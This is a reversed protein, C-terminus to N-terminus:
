DDLIDEFLNLSHSRLQETLNQLQGVQEQMRATNSDDARMEQLHHNSPKPEQNRDSVAAALTDGKQEDAASSSAALDSYVDIDGAAGYSNAVATSKYLNRNLDFVQKQSLLISHLAAQEIPQGMQRLWTRIQEIASDTSCNLCSERLFQLVWPPFKSRKDARNYRSDALVVVGYDTKSRIVRGICQASQRLADFTLFDNDRISYHERMFNLRARLVHSLTYQYPVGFVIVCRGYHRDFDIGEAVKGRAVSLFVAGRGADCARKYNDLALTTEVVDKTELYILKHDMVQALIGLRDWEGVIFEMFQYSTFFGCVGDPVSAAVDILLQGYNRIVPLDKRQEFRTSIPTQDSGRTVILPLLCSRFTTMPLSARVVPQFNLLKPYLDIPSLTGSTIVVSQFRTLVPKIAISADLCCLQILPETVGAVVSGLPETIIAFGELYTAVLTAFNAVEQLAGYEDLSTVELTRMLSNLRSYTFRLPKRELATLKHLNHLFALPTKNEVDKGTLLQKLHVVFKKLFSVFHEAKRINGPVAEELIDNSLVPNAIVTDAGLRSITGQMALGSVLDQYEKTLRVSDKAKMETVKRQLMGVSRSSAEVMRRDLTVSLAEICVNDINHAEDFVVSVIM